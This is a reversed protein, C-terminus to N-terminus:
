ADPGGPSAHRRRAAAKMAEWKARKRAEHRKRKEAARPNVLYYPGDVPM